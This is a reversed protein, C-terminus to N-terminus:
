IFYYNNVQPDFFDVCITREAAGTWTGAGTWSASGGELSVNLDYQLWIIILSKDSLHNLSIFAMKVGFLQMERQREWSVNNCDGLGDDPSGSNFVAQHNTIYDILEENDLSGTTCEAGYIGTLTM